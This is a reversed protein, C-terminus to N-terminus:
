MLCLIYYFMCQCLSLCSAFLRPFSPSESHYCRLSRSLLRPPSLLSCYLPLSSLPSLLLPFLLASLSSCLLSSFSFSSLSYYYDRGEASTQQSSDTIVSTNNNANNNNNNNNIDDKSERVDTSSKRAAKNPNKENPAGGSTWACVRVCM